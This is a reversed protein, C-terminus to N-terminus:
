PTAGSKVVEDGVAEGKQPRRSRASKHNRDRGKNKRGMLDTMTDEVLVTLSPQPRARRMVFEEIECPRLFIKGKPVPQYSKLGELLWRRITRTSADAFTAAGQLSVFANAFKKAIGWQEQLM